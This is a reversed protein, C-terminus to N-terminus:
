SRFKLKSESKEIHANLLNNRRACDYLLNAVCVKTSCLRALKAVENM